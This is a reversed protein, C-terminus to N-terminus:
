VSEYPFSCKNVFIMILFFFFFLVVRSKKHKVLGRPVPRLSRPRGWPNVQAVAPVAQLELWQM